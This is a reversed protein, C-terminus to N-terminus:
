ENSENICPLQIRIGLGGEDSHFAEVQGDHAVVLAKVLSLGLGSGGKERSRSGEVRYFRDFLFPLAEDSVGPGSDSVTLVAMNDQRELTVRVMGGHTAYRYANGLLNEIVQRLHRADGNIIISPVITAELTLRHEALMDRSAAVASAVIEDFAVPEKQYIQANVDALALMYLDDVLGSLHKNSQYLSTLQEQDTPRVGDRMAQIKALQTSLPTRLEHSMNALFTDKARNADEAEERAINLRRAMMSLHRNWYLITAMVLLVAVSIKWLLAYDFKEEISVTYWRRLLQNKTERDIGKIAKDFISALEPEDNRAGIRYENEFNAPGAVKLNSLGQRQIQPLITMLSGITAYASGDSVKQVGEAHNNVPIIKIKPWSTRVIEEYIYNKVIALTKGSLSQLGDLYVVDNRAVLVVKAKIYPETFNLYQSREPSKSLMSLLDCKRDKALQVSEDWTETKVLKIPVPIMKRFLDFYDATLGVHNGQEDIMEYPEWDPDICMTITKKSELYKKEASSLPLQSIATQAMGDVSTRGFDEGFWKRRFGDLEEVTLSALGKNLMSILEPADMQGAFHFNLGVLQDLERAWGAVKLDSMGKQKIMYTAAVEDAITADVKGYAVTSLMEELNDVLLLPIQPYNAQLLEVTSWNKGQSITKGYLQTVNTIDPHDKRTIYMQRDRFVRDSFLMFKSREPTKVLFPLLDLKHERFLQVIEDWTYGNIFEFRIGIKKALLNLLDITYGQPQGEIAFDFPPYDMENGVKIVPHNNIYAKEQPTFKITEWQDRGFIYSEPAVTKEAVGESVFMQAIKKVRDPDITGVPYMEPQVMRRTKDAEYLLQDRTKHQSNYKSLILEVVEEQHELAYVWGRNSAETFAQVTEPNRRAYDESTYLVVDYLPIGYNNPDIINFPVKKQRLLYVENTLFVTIADVEGDVFQKISFSHPVVTFDDSSMGAQKFMLKFNTSEFQNSFGMLKRGILDRPSYIDPKTVLALPSRQFYSALLTIPKGEMRVKIATSYLTGFTAEGSVVSEVLNKDPELERIDVDLGAEAYYGKEKAAYFGAFEFQHRWQLQISVQEAKKDTKASVVTPLIGITLLSLCTFIFMIKKMINVM